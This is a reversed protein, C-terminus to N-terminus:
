GEPMVWRSNYGQSTAVIALDSPRGRGINLCATDDQVVGAQVADLPGSYAYVILHHTAFTSARGRDAIRNAIRVEGLDIGEKARIPVFVCIERNRGAPVEFTPVRVTYAHRASAEPPAALIQLVALALLASRALM